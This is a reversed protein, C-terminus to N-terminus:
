DGTGDRSGAIALFLEHLIEKLQITYGALSRYREELQQPTLYGSGSGRRPRIEYTSREDLAQLRQYAERFRETDM